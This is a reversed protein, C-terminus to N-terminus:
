VRRKADHVTVVRDRRQADQQAEQQRQKSTANVVPDLSVHNTPTM